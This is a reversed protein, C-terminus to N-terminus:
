PQRKKRLAALAKGAWQASTKPSIEKLFYEKGDREFHSIEKLVSQYLANDVTGDAMRCYDSLEQDLKMQVPLEEPQEKPPPQKPPEKKGQDTTNEKSAANGDDDEDAVIGVIAALAYRRAYTLASGVAQPDAKIYPMDFESCVWEGSSHMLITRLKIKNGECTEPLQSVALGNDSLPKRAVEWVSSLDAYHSKFFPNESEKKANEIVGQAKSLAEALKGITESQM